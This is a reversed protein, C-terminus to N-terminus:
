PLRGDRRIRLEIATGTPVEVFRASGGHKATIEAVIALGLGTGGSHRSRAPDARVFRGFLRGSAEVDIGEGDDGVSVVANAGDYFCALQLSSQAYRVANDIVNRIMRKLM